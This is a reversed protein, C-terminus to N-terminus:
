PATLSRAAELAAVAAERTPYHKHPDCMWGFPTPHQEPEGPLADFLAAPLWASEQTGGFERWFIFPRADPVEQPEYTTRLEDSM